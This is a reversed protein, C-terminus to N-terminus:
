AAEHAAVDGARPAKIVPPNVATGTLHGEHWVSASVPDPQSVREQPRQDKHRRHWM